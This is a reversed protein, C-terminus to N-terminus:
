KKAFIAEMLRADRKYVDDMFNIRGDRDVWATFYVVTVPLPEELTVYSERGANMAADIREPNWSADHRLLYIALRRAEAVRICGHSFTRKNEKFLSKAPSDHLYIHYSNPFLFKVLGLANNPGPKQRVQNGNWEMNNRALYNPNRRIAPLIEKNMIGPPVNWYPSFVITKLTGQFIATKHLVEGVVVNCDWALSDNEYVLLKFQPINVVLYNGTPNDNVWRCREMNVLIQQIRKSLPANMERILAPGVVGDEVLGYRYQYRKVAATLSADFVRSGNDSDLDRALFLKKRIQAVAEGSDGEQYKKRDAKVTFWTGKQEIARYRRLYERLLGYQRYVPEQIKGGSQATRLMSDLLQDYDLKKRPVMWEMKRSEAEPLGAWVKNAYFFYQATQMIELMPDPKGKGATNEAEMMERYQRLYPPRAAVGEQEIGTVRNYLDGSQEILGSQDFWAYAYQRHRYFTIIEKRYARLSDYTDLFSQIATSDFRINEQASFNGPISPDANAVPKKRLSDADASQGNTSAGSCAQLLCAVSLILVLSRPMTM